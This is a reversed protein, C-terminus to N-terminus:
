ALYLLYWKKETKIPLNEEGLTSSSLTKSLKDTYELLEERLNPCEPINNSLDELIYRAIHLSGNRGAISTSDGETVPKLFEEIESNATQLLNVTRRDQHTLPNINILIEIKKLLDSSLNNGELRSNKHIHTHGKTESILHLREGLSRVADCTSKHHLAVTALTAGAVVGTTLLAANVGYSTRELRHASNISNGEVKLTM